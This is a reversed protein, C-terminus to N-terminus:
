GVAAASLRVGSHYSAPPNGSDAPTPPPRATQLSSSPSPSSMEVMFVAVATFNPQEKIAVVDDPNNQIISLDQNNFM